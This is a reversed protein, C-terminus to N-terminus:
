GGHRITQIVITDKDLIRYRSKLGKNRISQTLYGAIQKHKGERPFDVGRKLVWVSGDMLAEYDYKPKRGSPIREPFADIKEM